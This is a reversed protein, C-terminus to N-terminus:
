AGYERLLMDIEVYGKELAIQLATGVVPDIITKVDAGANLLAQVMAKNKREVAYMLLTRKNSAYNVNAGHDILLPVFKTDKNKQVVQTLLQTAKTSNLPVNYSLLVHLADLDNHDIAYKLAYEPAFMKKNHAWAMLSPIVAAYKSHAAIIFPPIGQMIQKKRLLDLLEFQKKQNYSLIHALGLVILAQEDSSLPSKKAELIARALEIKRDASVGELTQIIMDPSRAIILPNLHALAETSSGEDLPHVVSDAKTDNTKKYGYLFGFSASFVLLVTLLFVIDSQKNKM